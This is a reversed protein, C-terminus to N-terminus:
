KTIIEYSYEEADMLPCDIDEVEFYLNGNIDIYWDNKDTVDNRYKDYVKFSIKNKRSEDDLNWREGDLWAKAEELNGVNIYMGSMATDISKMCLSKENGPTCMKSVECNGTMGKYELTIKYTNAYEKCKTITMGEQLIDKFVDIMAM